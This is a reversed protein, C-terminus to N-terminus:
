RKLGWKIFYKIMNTIHIWLLRSSHYSGQAHNHTIEVAPYMVTRYHEHIRRTLDIDEPYMFYRPDFLGVKRLADTRLFMFCGSLYPVDLLKTKYDPQQYFAHNEFYATRKKTWSKPLFRRAFLDFPTPLQKALYQIIEFKRDSKVSYNTKCDVVGAKISCKEIDFGTDLNKNFVLGSEFCCPENMDDCYILKISAVGDINITSGTLNKSSVTPEFRCHLTRKIPSYYEPLAFESELFVEVEKEFICKETCLEVTKINSEM